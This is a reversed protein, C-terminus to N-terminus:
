NYELWDDKVTEIYKFGRRSYFNFLKKNDKECWLGLKVDERIAIEKLLELIDTCIGQNRYREDVRFEEIKICMTKDTECVTMLLDFKENRIYILNGNALSIISHQCSYIKSILITAKILAREENSRM